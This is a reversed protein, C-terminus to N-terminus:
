RNRPIDVLQLLLQEIGAEAPVVQGQLCVGDLRQDELQATVKRTEGQGTDGHPVDGLDSIDPSTRCDGTCARGLDAPLLRRQKATPFFM